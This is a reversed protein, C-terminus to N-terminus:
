VGTIGGCGGTRACDRQLHSNYALLQGRKNVRGGHVRLYGYKYRYPVHLNYMYLTHQVSTGRARLANKSNIM